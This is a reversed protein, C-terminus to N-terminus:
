RVPQILVNYFSIQFRQCSACPESSLATTPVAGLVPGKPASHEWLRKTPVSIGKPIKIIKKKNLVILLRVRSLVFTTCNYFPPPLPSAEPILLYSIKPTSSWVTSRVEEDFINYILSGLRTTSPSDVAAPLSTVSWPSFSHSFSPFM